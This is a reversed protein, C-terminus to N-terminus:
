QVPVVAEAEALTNYNGLEKPYNNTWDLDGEGKYFVTFPICGEENTEAIVYGNSYVREMVNPALDPGFNTQQFTVTM